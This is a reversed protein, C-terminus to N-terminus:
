TRKSPGLTEYPRGCSSPTGPEGYTRCRPDDCWGVRRGGQRVDLAHEVCLGIAPLIVTVSCSPDGPDVGRAWTRRAPEIADTAPEGCLACPPESASHTM